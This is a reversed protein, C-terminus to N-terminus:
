FRIVVGTAISINSSESQGNAHYYNWDFQALRVAILKTLKVDVGGGFKMAFGNTSASASACSSGGGGVLCGSGTGGITFGGILVHAFPNIKSSFDMAIVPGFTYDYLHANASASVDDSTVSESKYVGGFQGAIGFHKTVNATVSADWGNTNLGTFDGGLYQYQYGGFVEAKPSDQAMLPLAFLSLIVAGLFFKRMM